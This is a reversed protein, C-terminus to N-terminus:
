LRSWKAPPLWAGEPSAHDEPIWWPVAMDPLKILCITRAQLGGYDEEVSQDVIEDDRAM